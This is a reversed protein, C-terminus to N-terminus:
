NNNNLSLIEALYKLLDKIFCSQDNEGIRIHLSEPQKILRSYM